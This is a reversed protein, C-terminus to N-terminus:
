LNLDFEPACRDINPARSQRTCCLAVLTMVLGLYKDTHRYDTPTHLYNRPHPRDAKLTCLLILMVISSTVLMSNEHEPQLCLHQLGGTQLLVPLDMAMNISPHVLAIRYSM